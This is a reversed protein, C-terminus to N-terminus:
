RGPRGYAKTSQFHVRLWVGKKCFFCIEFSTGLCNDDCLWAGMASLGDQDVFQTLLPTDAGREGGQPPAKGAEEKSSDKSSDGSSDKSSTAGSGELLSLLWRGDEKTKANKFMQVVRHMPVVRHASLQFFFVSATM